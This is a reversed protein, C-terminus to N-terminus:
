LLQNVLEVHIITLLFDFLCIESIVSKTKDPTPRSKLSSFNHWSKNGGEVMATDVVEMREKELTKNCLKIAKTKFM